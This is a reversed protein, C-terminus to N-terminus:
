ADPGLKIVEFLLLLGRAHRLSADLGLAGDSLAFQLASHRHLRVRSCNPNPDLEFEGHANRKQATIKRSLSSGCCDHGYSFKCYCLKIEGVHTGGDDMMTKAMVAGTNTTRTGSDMTSCGECIVMIM